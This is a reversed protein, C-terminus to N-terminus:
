RRHGVGILDLKDLYVVEALAEIGLFSFPGLFKESIIFHRGLVGDSWYEMYATAAISMAANSVTVGNCAWDAVFIV